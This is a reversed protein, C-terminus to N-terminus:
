PLSSGRTLVNHLELFRWNIAHLLIGLFVSGASLIILGSALIAMPFHRVAHNPDTFYDYIPLIGALLGCVLFFLGLSGFFALPKFARFLTFIKWLVYFGDHFTRLKSESGPPRERYPIDVEVIKLRYYLMQLTIETEVEFGSSVVPIHKVVHYSFARYGSMIDTLQSRSVWNVMKRVLNNGFLHFPRFSKGTHTSLRAGVVMDANGSLVPELLRHVHEAPYTDDGDIMVYFDAKIRDFMREVVFGKGKRCEKLVIAGHKRAIQNTADTSCNDFVYIAASPLEHHFDDIVKGITIQENYCPILIAIRPEQQLGNSASGIDDDWGATKSYQGPRSSEYLRNQKM